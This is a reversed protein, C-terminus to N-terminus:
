VAGDGTVFTLKPDPRGLTIIINERFDVEAAACFILLKPEIRGKAALHRLPLLPGNADISMEPPAISVVPQFQKKSRPAWQHRQRIL